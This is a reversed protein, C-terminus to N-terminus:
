RPLIPSHHQDALKRIAFVLQTCDGCCVTMDHQEQRGVAGVEVGDFLGEADELASAEVVRM